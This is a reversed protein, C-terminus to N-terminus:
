PKQEKLIDALSSYSLVIFLGGVLIGIRNTTMGSSIARVLAWCIFALGAVVYARLAFQSQIWLLIGVVFCYIAAVATAARLLNDESTAVYALYAAGFIFTLSYFALWTNPLKRRWLTHLRSDHRSEEDVKADEIPRPARSM